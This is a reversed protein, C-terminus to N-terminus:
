KADKGDISEFILYFAQDKNHQRMPNSFVLTNRERIGFDIKLQASLLCLLKLISIRKEDISVKTKFYKNPDLPRDIRWDHKSFSTDGSSILAELYAFVDSPSANSIQVHPLLISNLYNYADEAHAPIHNTFEAAHVNLIIILGVATACAFNKLCFLSSKSM